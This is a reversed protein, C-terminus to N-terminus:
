PKPDAYQGRMAAEGVDSVEVWARDPEADTVYSDHGNRWKYSPTQRESACGSLTQRFKSLAAAM